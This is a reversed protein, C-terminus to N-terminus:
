HTSDTQLATVHIRGNELSMFHGSETGVAGQSGDIGDTECLLVKVPGKSSKLRIQISDERPAPVELKTEEPARIAIIVQDQFAKIRCIDEHTVYASDTVDKQDTLSFLQHACDKILEDLAEEVATLNLLEERLKLLWQSPLESTPISGVWQIQNTTRKKILQIGSLVNTVDYVRRKRAGLLRAAENLDLVGEPAMYLLDMFRKTLRGLSVDCRYKTQPSPPPRNGKTKPISDKPDIEEETKTLNNEADDEFGECAENEWTQEEDIRDGSYDNKNLHDPFSAFVSPIVSERLRVIQGTRDFDDAKFHCSCLVTTDNPKFDKRRVAIAWAKRLGPDKPFKHFTIGRHRNELSRRNRCRFAACAQPMKEVRDAIFSELASRGLM